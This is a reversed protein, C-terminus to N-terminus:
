VRGTAANLATRLQDRLNESGNTAQGSGGVPSGKVSVAANRAKNAQEQKNTAEQKQQAQLWLPYVQPDARCAMDYAEQLSQAKGADLLVAMYERVNSFYLNKPDSAFSEITSQVQANEHQEKMYYQQQQQQQMEYIQRQLQQVVPDVNQQQPAGAGLDVGFRQALNLIATRPDTRLMHATQLLNSVAGVTDGGEARIMPLYPTIVDKIQKGLVREEDFKTFGKHVEEERRAIEQQIEPPIEAFKAKAVPTWSDPPRIAKAETKVAESQTTPTLEKATEPEAAEKTAVKVPEAVEEKKAFKGQEDRAREFALKISTNLSEEEENNSSGLSEIVESM